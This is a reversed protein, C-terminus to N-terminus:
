IVVHPAAGHQQGAIGRPKLPLRAVAVAPAQQLLTRFVTTNTTSAGAALSCQLGGNRRAAEGAM